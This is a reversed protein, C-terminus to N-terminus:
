SEAGVQGGRLGHFSARGAARGGTQPAAHGRNLSPVFQVFSAESMDDHLVGSGSWCIISTAARGRVGSGEDTWLMITPNHSRIIGLAQMIVDQGSVIGQTREVNQTFGSAQLRKRILVIVLAAIITTPDASM